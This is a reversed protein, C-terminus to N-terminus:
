RNFNMRHKLGEKLIYNLMKVGIISSSILTNTLKSEGVRKKYNVPIQVFELDNKLAVIIIQPSYLDAGRVENELIRNLSDRRFLRYSCGVDNITPGSFLIEVIKGLFKNGTRLFFGMKANEEILATNTREGLVIDFDSSYAILKELDKSSYTSDSEVTVIIDKTAADMAAKMSYGYGQRDEEVVKAGNEKALSATEDESNNDAVIIEEVRELSQFDRVVEGISAEENYAPM